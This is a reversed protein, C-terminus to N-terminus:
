QAKLFLYEPLQIGTSLLANPPNLIRPEICHDTLCHLFKELLFGNQNKMSKGLDQIRLVSWKEINIEFISISQTLDSPEHYNKQPM